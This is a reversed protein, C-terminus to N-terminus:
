QSTVGLKKIEDNTLRKSLWEDCVLLNGITTWELPDGFFPVDIPYNITDSAHGLTDALHNLVDDMFLDRPVKQEQCAENMETLTDSDLTITIKKRRARTADLAAKALMSSPLSNKEKERLAQIYGPLVGDIYRDRRLGIDRIYRLVRDLTQEDVHFTTKQKNM